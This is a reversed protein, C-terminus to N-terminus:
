RRGVADGDDDNDSDDDHHHDAAYDVTALEGGGDCHCDGAMVIPM